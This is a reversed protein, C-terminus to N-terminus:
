VCKKTLLHFLVRVCFLVPLKWWHCSCRCYCEEVHVFVLKMFRFSLLLNRWSSNVFINKKVEVQKDTYMFYTAEFPLNNANTLVPMDSRGTPLLLANTRLSWLFKEQQPVAPRSPWNSGYYKERDHSSSMEYSSQSIRIAIESWHYAGRTNSKLSPVFARSKNAQKKRCLLAHKHRIHRM